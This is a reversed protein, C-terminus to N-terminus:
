LNLDLLFTIINLIQLPKRNGLMANVLFFNEPIMEMYSQYLM